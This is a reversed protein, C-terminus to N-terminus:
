DALSGRASPLGAEPMRRELSGTSLVPEYTEEWAIRGMLGGDFGAHEYWSVALLTCTGLLWLTLVMREHVTLFAILCGAQTPDCVPIPSRQQAM